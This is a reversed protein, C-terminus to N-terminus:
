SRLVEVEAASRVIRRCAPLAEEEVDAWALGCQKCGPVRISRISVRSSAACALPPEGKLVVMIYDSRSRRIRGDVTRGAAQEVVRTPYGRRRNTGSYRRENRASRRGNRVGEANSFERTLGSRDM